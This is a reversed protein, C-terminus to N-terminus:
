QRIDFVKESNEDKLSLLTFQLQDVRIWLTGRYLLALFREIDKKEGQAEMEVDGNPLNQVWGTLFCDNACQRAFRRFGVRQVRGKAIIGYRIM